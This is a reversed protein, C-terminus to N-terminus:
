CSGRVRWRSRPTATSVCVQRRRTARIRAPPMFQERRDSTFAHSLSLALRDALRRALHGDVAVAVDQDDAAPGGARGGGDGRRASPGGADEQQPWRVPARRPTTWHDGVTSGSTSFSAELSTTRSAPTCVSRWQQATAATLSPSLTRPTTKSLLSPRLARRALTTMSQVPSPSMKARAPASYSSSKSGSLAWARRFVLKRKPLTSM